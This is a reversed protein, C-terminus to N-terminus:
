RACINVATAEWQSCCLLVLDQCIRKNRGPWEKMDSVTGTRPRRDRFICFAEGPCQSILLKKASTRIETFHDKAIVSMESPAVRRLNVIWLIKVKGNWGVGACAAQM